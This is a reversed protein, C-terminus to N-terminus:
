SHAQLVEMYRVEIAATPNHDLIYTKIRPWVTNGLNNGSLKVCM